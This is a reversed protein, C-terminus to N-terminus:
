LTYCTGYHGYLKEILYNINVPNDRPGSLPIITVIRYKINDLESDRFRFISLQNTYNELMVNDLLKKFMEKTKQEIIKESWEPPIKFYTMYHGNRNLLEITQVEKGYYKRSM